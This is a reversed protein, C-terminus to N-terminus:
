RHGGRPAGRPTGSGFPGGWNGKRRAAGLLCSAQTFAGRFLGGGPIITSSDANPAPSSHKRSSPGAATETSSSETWVSTSTPKSASLFTTTTSLPNAALGGFTPAVSTVASGFGGFLPIPKNTPTTKFDSFLGGSSATSSQAVVSSFLGGSEPAASPFISTSPQPPLPQSKEGENKQNGQPSEEAMKEREKVHQEQEEEEESESEEEQEGEEGEEVEEEEEDNGNDEEENSSVVIVPNDAGGEGEYEEDEEREEGESSDEEEYDGECEEEVDVVERQDDDQDEREEESYEEDHEDEGEDEAYEEYDSPREEVEAPDEEEEEEQQSHDADRSSDIVLCPDDSREAEEDKEQGNEDRADEHIAYDGEDFILVSPEDMEVDESEKQEEGEDEVNDHSSAEEERLTATAVSSPPTTSSPLPSFITLSQQQQQQTLPPLAPRLRKPEMTEQHLQSDTSVAGEEDMLAEEYTRKAATIIVSPRSPEPISTGPSVESTTALPILYSSSPLSETTTTTTPLVTAVFSTLPRIEATQRAAASLSPPSTESATAPPTRVPQVAAAAKIKSPTEPSESQQQSVSETPPFTISTKNGTLSALKARLETCNQKTKTLQSEILNMRLLHEAQEETKERMQSIRSILASLLKNLRNFTESSSPSSTSILQSDSVPTQKVFEMDPLSEVQHILLQLQEIERRLQNSRGQESHLNAQAALLDARIAVVGEESTRRSEENLQTTRRKLEDAEQRYKRGIERLKTIKVQRQSLENEQQLCKEELNTLKNVLDQSDTQHRSLNSSLEAVQQELGAIKAAAERDALAKSEELVKVRAQLNDRAECAQKFEEPDLRKSTEVLRECREKWRNKEEALSAKESTLIEKMDELDACKTRLPAMEDRLAALEQQFGNANERMMEREQRLLRNSENLLNVQEIQKMLAAHQSSTELRTESKQREEALKAQLDALQSELTKTRFHLRNVEANASEEAAEAISKQRRLYELLHMFDESEKIQTTSEDLHISQESGHELLKRLNVIQETLKLIQEQLRSIETDADEVRKVLRSRSDEWSNSQETLQSEAKNLSAYAVDLASRLGEVESRAEDALRRAETLLEVDQSHLRLEMEYKERADKATRLHAAVEARSSVEVALAAERREEADKLSAQTAALKERLAKLSASFGGEIRMKERVLDERESRELELQLVLSECRFVLFVTNFSGKRQIADDLDAAHTRNAQEREETLQRIHSEMENGLCQYERCQKRAAELSTRLSACERELARFRVLLPQDGEGLPMIQDQEGAIPLDSSESAPTDSDSQSKVASKAAEQLRSIEEEATRLSQRANTLESQLTTNLSFLKDQKETADKKVEEIQVELSEIRRAARRTEAENRHELSVQISQLQNMLKQHMLSTKREMELERSLREGNAKLQEVQRILQRCQVESETLRDSLRVSEQRSSSLAEDSAAASTTYRANMERLVSIERKYNEVNAELTRFKEHTFDLQSALKQNLIRAETSEKRLKEITETYVTDSKAKDERYQKFEAHLSCLSQELKTVTQSPQSQSAPTQDYSTSVNSEERNQEEQDQIPMSTEDSHPLDPLPIAHRQLLNRYADRQRRALKTESRAESAALRAVEVESSLADVKATIESVHNDLSEKSSEHAELQSALDRAVLLLRANQTQLDSLSKFTVLNKDIVSAAASCVKLLHRSDIDDTSSDPHISINSKDMPTTSIVTGRATELEYLLTKVQISLDKCTEKLRMTQRQFYGARRIHYDLNEEKEKASQQLAELQRELEAVREKSKKFTEQQSRLIPSKEELQEILERIHTDLLNKDVRLRDREEVVQLYEAYIDILSRGSKISALTSAIAPNIQLLEEQSLGNVRFKDVIEKASNLESAMSINAAVLSEKEANFAEIISKKESQLVVVHDHGQQLLEQLEAVAKQLEDCKEELGSSKEKYLETLRRQADLESAHMQELKTLEDTRLKLKDIHDENSETLKKVLNELKSVADKSNELEKKKTTLESELHLFKETYESRISLLKDNAKHLEEEYWVNQQKISASTEELRKERLVLLNKETKIEEMQTITDSKMKRISRIEEQMEQLEKSIREYEENKKSLLESLSEKDNELRNIVLELENTICQSDKLKQALKDRDTSLEQSKKEERILAERLNTLNTNTLEFESRLRSYKDSAAKLETEQKKEMQEMQCKAETAENVVSDFAIAINEAVKEPLSLLDDESLHVLRALNDM